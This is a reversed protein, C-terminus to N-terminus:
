RGWLGMLWDWGRKLTDIAGSPTTSASPKEEVVIALHEGPRIVNFKRRVEEIIGEETQLSAIDGKLSEQRSALAANKEELDKLVQASEREKSFIGAAGRALLFAIIIIIVLSPYSYLYRKFRQKDRLEKM